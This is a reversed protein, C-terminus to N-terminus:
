QQVEALSKVMNWEFANDNVLSHQPIISNSSIVLCMTLGFVHRLLRVASLVTIRAEKKQRQENALVKTTRARPQKQQCERAGKRTCKLGM